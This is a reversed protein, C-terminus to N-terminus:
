ARRLELHSRPQIDSSGSATQAMGLMPGAKPWAISWARSSEVARKGVAISSGHPSGRSAAPRSRPMRSIASAAPTGSSRRDSPLPCSRGRDPHRGPRPPGARRTSRRRDRDFVGDDPGIRRSSGYRSASSSRTSRRRTMLPIPSRGATTCRRSRPSGPKVVPEPQTAGASLWDSNSAADFPSQAAASVSRAGAEHRELVHAVRETGRADQVGGDVRGADRRGPRNRREDALQRSPWRASARSAATPARRPRIARGARPARTLWRLCM